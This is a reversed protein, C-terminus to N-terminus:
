GYPPAQGLCAAPSRSRFQRAAGGEAQGPARAGSASGADREQGLVVRAFPKERGSRELSPPAGPACAPRSATRRGRAPTPRLVSVQGVDVARSGIAGGRAGLVAARSSGTVAAQGLSRAGSAPAGAYVAACVGAAREVAVARGEAVEPPGGLRVVACGPREKVQAARGDHVEVAGADCVTAIANDPWRVGLAHAAIADDWCQPDRARHRPALGVRLRRRGRGAVDHPERAGSPPANSAARSRKLVSGPGRPGGNIRRNRPPHGGTHWRGPPRPLTRSKFANVCAAKRQSRPRACSGSSPGARPCQHKAWIEATALVRGHRRGPCRPAGRPDRTPNARTVSMGFGYVGGGGIDAGDPRLRPIRQVPAPLGSSQAPKLLLASSGWNRSRARGRAARKRCARRCAYIRRPKRGATLAAPEIGTSGALFDLLQWSHPRTM